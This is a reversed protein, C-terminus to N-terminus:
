QMTKWILFFVLVLKHTDFERGKYGEMGDDDDLGVVVCVFIIRKKERTKVLKCPPHHVLLIM